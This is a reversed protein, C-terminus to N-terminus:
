YIPSYSSEKDLNRYICLWLVGSRDIIMPSTQTTLTINNEVQFSQFGGSQLKEAYDEFAQRECEFCDPIINGFFDSTGKRPIQTSRKM